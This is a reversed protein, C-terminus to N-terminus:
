FCKHFYTHTFFHTSIRSINNLFQFNNNSFIFWVGGLICWFYEQFSSCGFSGLNRAFSWFIRRSGLFYQLHALYSGHTWDFACLKVQLMRSKLVITLGDISWFSLLMINRQLQDWWVKGYKNLLLNAQSNNSKYLLLSTNCECLKWLIKM